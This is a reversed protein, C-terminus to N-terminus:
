YDSLMDKVGEWYHKSVLPEIEQKTLWAFDKTKEKDPHVQGAMIHAKFFFSVEEPLPTGKASLKPEPKYMGIPSRSVIWADIREGCQAFMDRHAAQHLLEGKVINGQPFRWLDNHDQLLLWVNRRGKRDLSKTDRATDSPHVRPMMEENEGEQEALQEAAAQNAAAKERDLEDEVGFTPGFAIKERKREEINFRTELISGQKFYFDYPFPNHLARRIRAQYSYYAREFPTPSRTLIPSRNLLISTGIIPKFTKTNTYNLVPPPSTSPAHTALTRSCFRANLQARCLSSMSSM